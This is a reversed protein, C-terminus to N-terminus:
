GLFGKLGINQTKREKIQLCLKNYLAEHVHLVLIM